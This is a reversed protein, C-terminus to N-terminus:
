SPGLGRRRLIEQALARNRAAQNRQRLREDELERVLPAIRADREARDLPLAEIREIADQLDSLRSM